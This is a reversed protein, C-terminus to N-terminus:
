TNKSLQDLKSGEEDSLIRWVVNIQTDSDKLYNLTDEGPSFEIM